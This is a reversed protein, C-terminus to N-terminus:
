YVGVGTLKLAKVDEKYLVYSNAAVDGNSRDYIAYPLSHTLRDWINEGKGTLDFQM